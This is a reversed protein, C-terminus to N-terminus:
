RFHVQEFVAAVLSLVLVTASLQYVLGPAVSITLAFANSYIPSSVIPLVAELIAIVAFIKGVEEPM